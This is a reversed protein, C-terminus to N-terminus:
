RPFLPCQLHGEFSSKSILPELGLGILSCHAGCIGRSKLVYPDTARPEVRCHDPSRWPDVLVPAGRHWGAFARSIMPVFGSGGVPEFLRRLNVSDPVVLARVNSGSRSSVLELAGWLEHELGVLATLQPIGDLSLTAAGETGISRSRARGLMGMYLARISTDGSWSGVGISHPV